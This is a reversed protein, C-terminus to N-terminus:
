SCASSAGATLPLFFLLLLDTEKPCAPISCKDRAEWGLCSM